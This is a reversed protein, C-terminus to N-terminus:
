SATADDDIARELELERDFFLDVLMEHVYGDARQRVDSRPLGHKDAYKELVRQMEVRAELKDRQIEALADLPTCRGIDRPSMAEAFSLLFRRHISM